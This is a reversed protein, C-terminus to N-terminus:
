LGTRTNLSSKFRPTGQKYPPSSHPVFRNLVFPGSSPHVLSPRSTAPPSQRPKRDRPETAADMKFHVSVRQFRRSCGSTGVAVRSDVLYITRALLHKIPVALESRVQFGYKRPFCSNLPLLRSTCHHLQQPSSLSVKPM